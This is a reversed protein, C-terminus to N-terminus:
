YERNSMRHVYGSRRSDGNGIGEVFPELQYNKIIWSEIDAVKYYVRSNRAQGFKLYEPGDHRFRMNRLKKLTLFPWRKEVEKETLLQDQHRFARDIRTVTSELLSELDKPSQLLKSKVIADVVISKIVDGAKLSIMNEIPKGIQM